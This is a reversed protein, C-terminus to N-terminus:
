DTNVTGLLTHVDVKSRMLPYNNLNLMGPLIFYDPPMMYLYISELIHLSYRATLELTLFYRLIPAITLENSRKIAHM